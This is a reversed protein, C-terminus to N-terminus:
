SGKIKHLFVTNFYLVYLIIDDDPLYSFSITKIRKLVGIKCRGAIEHARIAGIMSMLM